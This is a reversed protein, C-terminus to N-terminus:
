LLSQRSGTVLSASIFGMEVEKMHNRLSLPRVEAVTRQLLRLVGATRAGALSDGDM